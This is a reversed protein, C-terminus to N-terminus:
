LKFLKLNNFLLYLIAIAILLLFADGLRLRLTQWRTPPKEICVEERIVRDRFVISDRVITEREVAVPVRASKTELSHRLVGASVAAESRAFDNELVSVTDLVAVREVIVPLEVFATDIVTERVTRVEVRTSDSAPLMRVPGCASAATMLVLLPLVFPIPLFNKM